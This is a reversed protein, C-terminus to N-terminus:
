TSEGDLRILSGPVHKLPWLRLSNNGLAVNEVSDPLMLALEQLENSSLDLTKLKTLKSFADAEINTLFNHSLNLIELEADDRFVNATFIKFNNHALNLHQWKTAKGTDITYLENFTLDVTRAGALITALEAPITDLKNNSLDLLQMDEVNSMFGTNITNISNNSLVVRKIGSLGYLFDLPPFSHPFFSYVIRNNNHTFYQNDVCVPVIIFSM